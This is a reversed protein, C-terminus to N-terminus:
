VIADRPTRRIRYAPIGSVENVLRVVYESLLALVLLTVGNCFALLCVLTPFGPSVSGSLVARVLYYAGLLFSM